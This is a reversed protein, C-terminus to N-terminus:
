LRQLRLRQCFSDVHFPVDAQQAISAVTDFAVSNSNDLIYRAVQKLRKSLTDYRRRIEDQLITLQTPNNAM